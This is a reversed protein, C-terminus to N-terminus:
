GGPPKLVASVFRKPGKHQHSVAQLDPRYNMWTSKCVIFVSTFKGNISKSQMKLFGLDGNMKLLGSSLAEKCLQKCFAVEYIICYNQGNWFYIFTVM